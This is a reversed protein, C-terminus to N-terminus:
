GHNVSGHGYGDWAHNGHGLNHTQRLITYGLDMANDDNEGNFFFDPTYGMQLACSMEM